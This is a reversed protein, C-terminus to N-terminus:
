SVLYSGQFLIFTEGMPCQVPLEEICPLHGRMGVGPGVWITFDPRFSVENPNRDSKPKSEQLVRFTEDVADCIYDHFAFLQKKM